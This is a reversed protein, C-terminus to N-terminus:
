MVICFSSKWWSHVFICKDPHVFEVNYFLLTTHCNLSEIVRSIVVFYYECDASDYMRETATAMRIVETATFLCWVKFSLSKKEFARNTNNAYLLLLWHCQPIMVFFGLHRASTFFFSSPYIFEDSNWKSLFVIWSVRRTQGRRSLSCHCKRKFGLFRQGKTDFYLAHLIWMGDAPM